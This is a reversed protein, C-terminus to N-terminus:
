SLYAHGELLLLNAIAPHVNHGYVAVAQYSFPYLALLAGAVVAPLPRRWLRWSLAALLGANLAHQAVNMSHLLWAPYHGALIEVLLLPLFTLPRYFGFKDTPLWVSALNLDEAIRIHLLSDYILPLRLTPLYMVAALLAPLLCLLAPHIPSRARSPPM